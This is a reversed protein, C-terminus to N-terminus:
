TRLIDALKWSFISCPIHRLFTLLAEPTLQSREEALIDINSLCFM